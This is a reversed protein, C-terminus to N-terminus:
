HLETEPTDLIKPNISRPTCQAVMLKNYLPLKKLSMFHSTEFYLEDITFTSKIISTYDELLRLHQGREMKRFLRLPLSKEEPQAIIDIVLLKGDSTLFGALRKLIPKLTADDIHHMCCSIIILDFPGKKEIGDLDASFYAQPHYFKAVKLAEEDIDYGFYNLGRDTFYKAFFGSSCGFDLVKKSPSLKFKSVYKDLMQLQEAKGFTVVRQFLDAAVALGMKVM